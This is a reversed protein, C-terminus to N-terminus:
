LFGKFSVLVQLGNPMAKSVPIQGNSFTSSYSINKNSLIPRYGIGLGIRTSANLAYETNLVPELAFFNLQKSKFQQQKLDYKMFGWGVLLHLGCTFDERTFFSYDLETGVCNIYLRPQEAFGDLNAKAKFAKLYFSHYVSISANFRPSIARGIKIGSLMTNENQLQTFRLPLVIFWKKEKQQVPTNEQSYAAASLAFLVVAAVLKLAHLSLQNNHKKTPPM